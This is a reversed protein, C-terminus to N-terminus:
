NDLWDRRFLFVKKSASPLPQVLAPLTSLSFVTCVKLPYLQNGTQRNSIRAFGNFSDARAQRLEQGLDRLLDHLTTISDRTALEAIGHLPVGDAAGLKLLPAWVFRSALVACLTVRPCCLSLMELIHDQCFRASLRVFRRQLVCLLRTCLSVLRNRQQDALEPAAVAGAASQLHLCFSPLGPSSAVCRKFCLELTSLQWNLTGAALAVRVATAAARGFDNNSVGDGRGARAVATPSLISLLKAVVHPSLWDVPLLLAFM